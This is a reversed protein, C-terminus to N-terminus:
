ARSAEEEVGQSISIKGSDHLLKKGVTLDILAIIYYYGYISRSM